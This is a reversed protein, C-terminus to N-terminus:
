HCAAHLPGRGGQGGGHHDPVGRSRESQVLSGRSEAGKALSYVEPFGYNIWTLGVTLYFGGPDIFALSLPLRFYCVYGDVEPKGKVNLLYVRELRRGPSYAERTDTDKDRMAQLKQDLAAELTSDM